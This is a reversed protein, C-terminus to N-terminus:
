QCLLVGEKECTIWLHGNISARAVKLKAGCKPCKTIISQSAKLDNPVLKTLRNIIENKVESM